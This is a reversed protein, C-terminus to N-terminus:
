EVETINLKVTDHSYRPRRTMVMKLKRVVRICKKGNSKCLYYVLKFTSEKLFMGRLIVVANTFYKGKINKSKFSNYLGYYNIMTHKNLLKYGLAAKITFLIRYSSGMAPKGRKYYFWTSIRNYATFTIHVNKYSGKFAYSSSAAAINAYIFVGLLVASILMIKKM